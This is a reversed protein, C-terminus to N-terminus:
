LIGKDLAKMASWVKDAIDKLESPSLRVDFYPSLDFPKGVTLVIKHRFGYTGSIYAPVINKKAKLAILIVGEKIPEDAGQKIRTGHPFILLKEKNKLIRLATKIATIDANGRDVPFAGVATFFWKFLRNSFLEAKAMIRLKLPCFAIVLPPDLNSIHNPAIVAGDEPINELGEIKINFLIRFFVRVLFKLVRMM